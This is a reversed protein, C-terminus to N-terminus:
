VLLSFISIIYFEKLFCLTIDTDRILFTQIDIRKSKFKVELFNVRKLIEESAQQSNLKRRFLCLWCSLEELCM